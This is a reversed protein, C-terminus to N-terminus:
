EAENPRETVQDSSPLESLEQRVEKLDQETQEVDERFNPISDFQEAYRKEGEEKIRAIEEESYDRPYERDPLPTPGGFMEDHREEAEKKIKAIEEESYDTPYERDPLPAPDEGFKFPM